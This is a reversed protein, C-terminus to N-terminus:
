TQRGDFQHGNFQSFQRELLFNPELGLLAFDM